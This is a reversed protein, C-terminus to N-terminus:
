CCTWLVFLNYILHRSLFGRGYELHYRLVLVRINELLREDFTCTCIKGFSFFRRRSLLRGPTSSDVLSFNRVSFKGFNKEETNKLRTEPTSVPGSEPRKGAEEGITRRSLSDVRIAIPRRLPSPSFPLSWRGGRSLDGVHPAALISTSM